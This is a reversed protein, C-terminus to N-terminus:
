LWKQAYPQFYAFPLLLLSFLSQTSLCFLLFAFGLQTLLLIPSESAFENSPTQEIRWQLIRDPRGKPICQLVAPDVVPPTFIAAGFDGNLLRENQFQTCLSGYGNQSL